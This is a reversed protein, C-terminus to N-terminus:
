KNLILKNVLYIGFMIFIGWFIGIFIGTQGQINLPIDRYDWNQLQKNYYFKGYMYELLAAIFGYIFILNYWQLSQLHYNVIM